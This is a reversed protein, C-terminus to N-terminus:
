GDVGTRCPRQQSTWKTIQTTCYRPSCYFCQRPYYACKNNKQMVHWILQNNMSIRWDNTNLRSYLSLHVNGQEEAVVALSTEMLFFDTYRKCVTVLLFHRVKKKIFIVHSIFDWSDHGECLILPPQLTAPFGWRQQQQKEPISMPNHLPTEKISYCWKTMLVSYIILNWLYSNLQTTELPM